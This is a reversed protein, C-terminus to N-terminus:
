VKKLLVWNHQEKSGHKQEDELEIVEFGINVLMKEYKAYDYYSWYMDSGCFNDKHKLEGSDENRLTILFYGGSKIRTYISKFISEHEDRPIHLISYLATVCDFMVDETRLYNKINDCIYTATPNNIKAEAIHKHCFDIGTLVCGRDILYADYPYGNGCGLDLVKPQKPLRSLAKDFMSKEFYTVFRNRFVSTYNNKEYSRRVKEEIFENNAM